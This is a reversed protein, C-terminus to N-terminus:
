HNLEIEILATSGLDFSIDSWGPPGFNGVANNSFGWPETPMGVMNGTSTMTTTKM